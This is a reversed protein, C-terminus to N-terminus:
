QTMSNKRPLKNIIRDVLWSPLVMFMWVAFAMPLPFSLRAPSKLLKQRIYKAAAKSSLMMPMTFDNTSTMQTDIYGPCVTTVMVNDPYLLARLSEGYSKVAAKSACYAPAGAFGRYGALSSIIAIQGKKASKLAPIFPEISYFVGLVNTRIIAEIQEISELGDATGGSIGANAIILDPTHAKIINDVWEKMIGRKTVDITATHVTAGKNICETAVAQLRATNRGTLYLIANNNAYALALAAGLGSSAGTICIIKPTKKM